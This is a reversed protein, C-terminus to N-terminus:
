VHGCFEANPDCVSRLPVDLLNPTKDRLITRFFGALKDITQFLLDCCQLPEGFSAPENRFVFNETRSVSMQKVTAISAHKPNASFCNVNQPDYMSRPEQVAGHEFILFSHAVATAGRPREKHECCAGIRRSGKLPLQPNACNLLCAFESYDIYAHRPKPRIIESTPLNWQLQGFGVWGNVITM